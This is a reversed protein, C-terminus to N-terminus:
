NGVPREPRWQDKDNDYWPWNHPYLPESHKHIRETWSWVFDKGSICPQQDEEDQYQCLHQRYQTVQEVKHVVDTIVKKKRFIFICVNKKDM